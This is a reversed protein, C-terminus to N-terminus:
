EAKLKVGLAALAALTCSFTATAVKFVALFFASYQSVPTM